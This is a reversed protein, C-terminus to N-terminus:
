SALKKRAVQLNVRLTGNDPDIELASQWADIAGQYDKGRFRDFGEDILRGVRAKHTEAAGESSTAQSLKDRVEMEVAEHQSRILQALEGSTAGDPTPTARKLLTRGDLVVITVVQRHPASALETQVQFCRKDLRVASLIGSPKREEAEVEPVPKVVAERASPAIDDFSVTRSTIVFTGETLDFAQELARETDENLVLQGAEFAIRLPEGGSMLEIEGSLARVECFKLLNVFPIKAIDGYFTDNGRRASRRLLARVKARLVVPAVPKVLYDDAGLDLADVVTDADQLSSLFIFPTRRAPCRAVYSRRFEFGDMKPMRIDSIILQPEHEALRELAAEPEGYTEVQHGDETLSASVTELVAADDDVLLIM